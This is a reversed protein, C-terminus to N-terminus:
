ARKRRILGAGVLGAGLLILTTPEPIPDMPFTKEILDNGCELTNHLTVSEYMGTDYNLLAKAIRFEWIYTDGSAGDPPTLPNPELDAEFLLMMDIRGLNEGTGISYAGVQQVITSRSGYGGPREPIYNWTEVDILNGTSVDVAYSYKEGNFGFFLDGSNFAGFDNSMAVEGFSSTLGVYLYMEDEACFAGELDFKEGGENNTGPSPLYGINPYDIPSTNNNEDFVSSGFDFYTWSFGFAPASIVLTLCMVLLLNKM